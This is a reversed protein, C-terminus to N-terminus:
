RKRNPVGGAIAVVMGLIIGIVGAAALTAKVRPKSPKKPVIAEDLVIFGDKEKGETIRAKSHEVLLTTYITEAAKLDRLLRVYQMEKPPLTTIQEEMKSIASALASSRAEMGSKTVEFTVLQKLLEQHAPDASVAKGSILSAVEAHMRANIKDIEQNISVVEPHDETLDELLTARKIELNVLQSHLGSVAPSDVFAEPSIGEPAGASWTAHVKTIQREIGQMDIGIAAQQRELELVQELYASSEEPPVLTPNEQQFKELSEEAGALKEKSDALQGEIYLRSKRGMFLANSNDYKRLESVYTNAVRAALKATRRKLAGKPVYPKLWSTPVQCTIVMGGEKPTVIGICKQLDIYDLDYRDLRIRRCVRDSLTRSKLVSTYVDKGSLSPINGLLPMDGLKSLIDSGANQSPFLLTAEGEYVRPTISLLIGAILVTAVTVAAIVWKRRALVSVYDLLNIEDM